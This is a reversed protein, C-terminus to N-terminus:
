LLQYERQLLLKKREVGWRYGSISGNNRVVRHCPIIIAITNAGCATGVARIAQPSGIKQAIETYSVTSGCPIEQLAKWVKKQFPTGREDLSVDLPKSPEDIYSIVKALLAATEKGGEILEAELFHSRLENKLENPENGLLVACLGNNSQAALVYGLWSDGIAFQIHEKGSRVM